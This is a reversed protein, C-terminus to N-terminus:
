HYQKLINLMKDRSMSRSYRGVIEDNKNLIIFTPVRDIRFHQKLNIGDFSEIDVKMKVFHNDMEEVIQGDKFVTEEMLKCPMCWDASFTLFMYKNELAAKSKNQYYLQNSIKVKYDRESSYNNFPRIKEKALIVKPKETINEIKAPLPSAINESSEAVNLAVPEELALDEVIPIAEKEVNETFPKYLSELLNTPAFSFHSSQYNANSSHITNSLGMGIIGLGIFVLVFTLILMGAKRIKHFYTRNDAKYTTLNPLEVLPIPEDFAFQFSLESDSSQEATFYFNPGELTEGAM